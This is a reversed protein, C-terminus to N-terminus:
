LYIVRQIGARTSQYVHHFAASNALLVNNLSKVALCYKSIINM